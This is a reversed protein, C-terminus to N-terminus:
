KQKFNRIEKKRRRQQMLQKKILAFGAFFHEAPTYTSRGEKDCRSPHPRRYARHANKNKM